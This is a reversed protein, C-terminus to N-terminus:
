LKNRNKNWYSIKGLAIRAQERVALSENYDESLTKLEGSGIFSGIEGLAFAAKEKVDSVPDRLLQILCFVANKNGQYAIAECAKARLLSDKEGLADFLFDFSISFHSLADLIQLDFRRSIKKYYAILIKVTKEPEINEVMWTILLELVEPNQKNIISQVQNYDQLDMAQQLQGIIKPLLFCSIVKASKESLTLYGAKNKLIYQISILDRVIVSLEIDKRNNGSVKRFIHFLKDEKLKGEHFLIIELLSALDPIKLPLGLDFIVQELILQERFLPEQDLSTQLQYFFSLQEFGFGKLESNQLCESLSLKHETLYLKLKKYRIILLDLYDFAYGTREAISSLSEDSIWLRFIRYWPEKPDLIQPTICM